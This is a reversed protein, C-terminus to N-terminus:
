GLVMAFSTQGVNAMAVIQVAEIKGAVTSKYQSCKNGDSLLLPM